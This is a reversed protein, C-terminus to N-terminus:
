TIWNQTRAVKPAQLDSLLHLALFVLCYFPSARFTITLICEANGIRNPPCPPLTSSCKPFLCQFRFKVPLYPVLGNGRSELLCPCYHKRRPVLPAHPQLRPLRRPSLARAPLAPFKSLIGPRAATARPHAHSRALLRAPSHASYQCGLLPPQAAGVGQRWRSWILGPEPLSRAPSRAPPPLLPRAASGPGLSPSPGQSRLAACRGTARVPAAPSGARGALEHARASPRAALGTFRFLGSGLKGRRRTGARGEASRAKWRRRRPSPRARAPRTAAVSRPAPPASQPPSPPRKGAHPPDPSGWGRGHHRRGAARFSCVQWRKGEAGSWGPQARAATGGADKNPRRHPVASRPERAGPGPQARGEAAVRGRRRNGKGKRCGPRPVRRPGRAWQTGRRGPRGRCSDSPPRRRQGKRPAPSAGPPCGTGQTGGRAPRAGEEAGVLRKPTSTM